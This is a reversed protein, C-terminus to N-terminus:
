DRFEFFPELSEIWIAIDGDIIAAEIEFVM